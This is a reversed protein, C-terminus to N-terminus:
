FCSTDRPSSTRTWLINLHISKRNFTFVLLPLIQCSSLGKGALYLSNYHDLDHNQEQIERYVEVSQGFEKLLNAHKLNKINKKYCQFIESRDFRFFATIYLDLIPEAGRHWQGLHMLWVSYTYRRNHWLQNHQTMLSM